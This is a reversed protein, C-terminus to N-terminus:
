DIDTPRLMNPQTRASNPQSMPPPEGLCPAAEKINRLGMAWGVVACAVATISDCILNAVHDIRDAVVLIAVLVTESALLQGIRSRESCTFGSSNGCRGDPM